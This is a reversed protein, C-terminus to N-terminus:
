HLSDLSHLRRLYRRFGASWGLLVALFLLELVPVFVIKSSFLNLKGIGWVFFASILFTLILSFILSSIARQRLVWTVVASLSAVLLSFAFMAGVIAFAGFGWLDEDSSNIKVADVINVVLFVLLLLCIFQLGGLLFRLYRKSKAIRVLVM